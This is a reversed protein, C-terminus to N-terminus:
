STDVDFRAKFNKRIQKNTPDRLKMAYEAFHDQLDRVLQDPNIFVTGPDKRYFRISTDLVKDSVLLVNFRPLSLHYLGCRVNSYLFKLLKNSVRKPWKTNQPFVARVGKRFYFESKRRATYGARYKAIMEFYSMVIHLLAFGREPVDREIMERAVGLQWGEVRAIFVEVKESVSLEQRTSFDGVKHKPSIAISM